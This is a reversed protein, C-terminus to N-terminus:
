GHPGNCHGDVAFAHRHNVRLLYYRCDHEVQETRIDDYVYDVRIYQCFLFLSGCVDAAARIVPFVEVLNESVVDHIAGFDRHGNGRHQNTIDCQNRDQVLCEQENRTDADCELIHEAIDEHRNCEEDADRPRFCLLRTCEHCRLEDGIF